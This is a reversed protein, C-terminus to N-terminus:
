ILLDESGNRMVDDYEGNPCRILSQTETWLCCIQWTSLVLEVTECIESVDAL